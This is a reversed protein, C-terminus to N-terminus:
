RPAPAMVRGGLASGSIYLASRPFVMYLPSIPAPCGSRYAPNQAVRLLMEAVEATADIKKQAQIM